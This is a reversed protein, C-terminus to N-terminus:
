LEFKINYFKTFRFIFAIIKFAKHSISIHKPFIIYGLYRKCKTGNTLIYQLYKKLCIYAEDYKKILYLKLLERLCGYEYKGRIDPFKEKPIFYRNVNCLIKFMCDFNIQKFYKAKYNSFNYCYSANEIFAVHDIHLLYSLIFELDECIKYKTNFSIKYHNIIEKKFCKCWLFGLIYQNDLYSLMNKVDSYNFSPSRKNSDKKIYIFNSVVMDVGASMTDVFSYIWDDLVWDDSDCFTIFEGKANDLGVNRASSVGKNEKHFVRIRKDKKAYEDCIEGSKDKSGDDILLLEFDTFTQALISDICRHLYKEANYVPVIVSIKPNTNEM